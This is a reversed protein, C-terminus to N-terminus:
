AAVGQRLASAITTLANDATILAAATDIALNMGAVTRLIPDRTATWAAITEAPSPGTYGDRALMAAAAAELAATRPNTPTGDPRTTSGTVARLATALDMDSGRYDHEHLWDAAEHLRTSAWHAAPTLGPLPHKQAHPIM